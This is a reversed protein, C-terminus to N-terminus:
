AAKPPTSKVIQYISAIGRGKAELRLVDQAGGPWEINVERNVLGNRVTEDLLHRLFTKDKQVPAKGLTLSRMCESVTSEEDRSVLHRVVELIEPTQEIMEVEDELGSVRVKELLPQDLAGLQTKAINPQENRGAGAVSLAEQIKRQKVTRPEKIARLEARLRTSEASLRENENRLEEMQLKSDERIREVSEPSLPILGLLENEMKKTKRDQTLTWQSAWRSPFPSALIFVAASAIPALFGRWVVAWWSPFVEARAM